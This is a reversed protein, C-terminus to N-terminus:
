QPIGWVNEIRYYTLILPRAIGHDSVKCHFEITNSFNCREWYSDIKLAAGNIRVYLPIIHGNTKFSAIVPVTTFPKYDYSNYSVISGM